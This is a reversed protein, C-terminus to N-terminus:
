VIVCIVVLTATVFSFFTRFMKIVSGIPARLTSVSEPFFVRLAQLMKRLFLHEEEM